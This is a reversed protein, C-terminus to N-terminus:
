YKAYNEGKIKKLIIFIYFLFLFVSVVYVLVYARGIKIYKKYDDYFDYIYGNSLVIKFAIYTKGNDYYEIYNKYGLVDPSSIISCSEKNFVCTIIKIDGNSDLVYPINKKLKNPVKGQVVFYSVGKFEFYGSNLDKKMKNLDIFIRNFYDNISFVNFSFIVIFFYSLLSIPIFNFGIKTKLNLLVCLIFPILQLFFVILFSFFISVIVNLNAYFYFFCSFVFILFILFILFFILSYFKKIVM